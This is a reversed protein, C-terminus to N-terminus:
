VDVVRQRGPEVGLREALAIADFPARTKVDNDFYLYVDRGETRTPAPAAVTHETQPARGASWERVRNAWHDLAEDGYGSVYLEEDGHLRVYVWDATVDDLFPFRQATDAVVLAVQQARLLEVLEAGAFSPHRVEVAHRLPRDADTVTLARNELREDHGKALEAAAASSRPLRGLFDNMRGADFGLTPPLQWLVPGLKPGLGLVGSAFFNALPTEVDALKKLHTIFRPGKVSFCFDNPTQEAWRRYSEPRQLAYFSGNIEISNLRSAAYQLERAQTLEKPYFTGRWPAYRWGSIGIRLEAM